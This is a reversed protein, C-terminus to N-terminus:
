TIVAKSEKGDKSVQILTTAAEILEPRHTTMIIQVGLNQAMEPIFTAMKSLYESSLFKLSEDLILVRNQAPRRLVLMVVRLLFAVVDGIGGGAADLINLELGDEEIYFKTRLQKGSLESKVKFSYHAGFVYKVGADVLAEVKGEFKERRKDAWVNFFQETQSLVLEANEAALVKNTLTELSQAAEERKGLAQNFRYLVESM